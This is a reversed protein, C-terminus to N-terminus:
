MALAGENKLSTFTDRNLRRLKQALELDRLRATFTNRPNAGGPGWGRRTLEAYIDDRDWLREPEEDLILLIATKLPPHAITIAPQIDLPRQGERLAQELWDLAKLTEEARAIMATGAALEGDAQSRMRALTDETGEGSGMFREMLHAVWGALQKADPEPM